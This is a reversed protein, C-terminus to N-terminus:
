FLTFILNKSKASQYTSSWYAAHYRLSKLHCFIFFHAGSLSSLSNEILDLKWIIQIDILATNKVSQQYITGVQQNLKFQILKRIFRKWFGSGTLAWVRLRGLDIFATNRIRIRTGSSKSGYIRSTEKISGLNRIEFGPDEVWIKSLKTVIKHTFLVIIRRLTAWIKNQPQEFFIEIKTFNTAIYFPVVFEGGGRRKNNNSADDLIGSGPDLYSRCCQM